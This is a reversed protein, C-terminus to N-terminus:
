ASRKRLNALSNVHMRRPKRRLVRDVDRKAVSGNARRIVGHHRCWDTFAKRSKCPIYAVATEVGLWPGAFERAREATDPTRPEDVVRADLSEPTRQGSM